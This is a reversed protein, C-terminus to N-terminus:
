DAAGAQEDVRRNLAPNRWDRAVDDLHNDFDALAEYACQQVLDAAVDLCSRALSISSKDKSKWKGDVMQSVCLASNEMNLTLNRNDIVVMCASSFNDAVKEAIRNCREFSLDRIDENALYYGVIHLGVSSAWHDIQTLAVEAMPTVHLCLHFLPIADLIFIEKGKAEGKNRIDEALLIGNVACHPYKAAHLIMKCYARASFKLDAMNVENRCM